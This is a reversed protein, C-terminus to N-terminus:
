NINIRQGKSHSSFEPAYMSQITTIGNSFQGAMVVRLDYEFIYFGKSLHDFFFNTTADKTSEYYGLGDQWKYQSLVNIPELGSARMDKMHIFEMVRDAQIEIRVTVLDGVSLIQSDTLAILEKGRDSNTKKFLTKKLKLPTTSPTIKDLDEFYQWYLAGWAGTNGTASISIDSMRPRIETGNWSTKFYGTGAEIQAEQAKSPIVKLNGLNVDAMDTISVWDSGQLLLAYVAETTAKTSKWQNLQKNKLLWHKLNDITEKDNEIESFVEILLAQTEIPAQYWYWSPQNSKWYMGLEESQISNEKLSKLIQSSITKNHSRFQFLAIMGKGFLNFESWYTASQNIYFEIAKQTTNNIPIDPYFSRMYLYHLEFYQIHKQALYTEYNKLGKRAKIKKAKELVSKYTDVLEADLFQVAKTIMSETSPDFTSVGLKKLHGFGSTIHQTVLVNSRNSGKFWTFAGSHLQMNKLKTMTNHQENKMRNLDFLLGIRKKQETESQADRLWPTEQIILSKLDQNKDLNSLVADTSKWANFVEQIRPNSNAIHSALMNAYYRAFTQESCEYPYEMLYPLAQIAYWAPNSTVELTLKHNKLTTSSNNKLKNISFTKTSNSRVWMPVTETVLMRNTLVPLVHQEGDSFDGAKAVIKYQLADITDPITLQWSVNTNGNMDVTFSQSRNESPDFLNVNKGTIVDTITLQAIGQVKKDTLNSIKNSLTIKDGHRLFRPLNPVVMLKKQTVVDLTKTASHLTKTHALLQLKWKTLAEPATFNFTVSGTKDTTLHPYFFATEQFNKRIQINNLSLKTQENDSKDLAVKDLAMSDNAEISTEELESENEPTTMNKTMIGPTKGRIAYVIQPHNAFYFGFWNLQNYMQPQYPIAYATNLNQVYLQTIGFSEHANPSSRVYYRAKQVPSFRWAHPKFQDLSADYMSALLEAVVKDKRDGKITFSWTQDEGPQLRDRFTKTQIELDTKPYPVNVLVKGSDFANYNVLHYAVAFGGLDNETVPITITKSNKSLHIYHSQIIQHQKEIYVMVTINKSNSSVTIIAKEGVSYIDKDTKVQLLQNDAPVKENSSIVSFFHIDTVKQSFKDQSELEAVYHGTTWHKIKNLSIEKEKETNFAEYFVMIGKQWNIFHDENAYADHPFKEKFEKESISQYDPASWPRKRLPFEPAILKYIKIKGKAPVFEGNLNQTKIKITQNKKSANLEKDMEITGLLSHYGVKVTTTASRTEGNIDTVDAAIIYTFVPLNKRDVSEDAFAKFNIIFNGNEDTISDGHVIEQPESSFYPRYWYWWNPYQVQRYVRYVVKANTINAGSFATAFGNVLISDNIKYSETIPKFDTEFKPRKYEEVSVSLSRRHGNIQVEITHHGTLGSNPTTFEGSFSGFANTKLIINKILQGNADKFIVSVDANHLVTSTTKFTEMAIGKFYLTQGPRYISRDTFLFTQTYVKSPTKTSSYRRSLYFKGFTAKDNNYSVHAKVGSYNESNLNLTVEGNKDTKFTKDIKPNRHRTPTNTLRIKAQSVPKGTHRNVVQYVQKSDNDRDILALNTVQIATTGFPTNELLKEGSLAVLLYRGQALKPIIVETTHQQYDNENKLSVHWSRVKTLKNIFKIKEKEGYTQKLKEAQSESISFMLFSLSDLNKYTVLARSYNQIPIYEETSIQLSKSLIQHKLLACKKAGASEPFKQLISECITLAEKNKFRPTEHITHQYSNAQQRYISAVEYAYLGSVEHNKYQTQSTKLTTLYLAEKSNFTAHQKIFELREIDIIALAEINNKQQHFAILDQYLKIANLQLSLTDKTRISLTAFSEANSLLKPNEIKFQYAPKTINTENTKYFALSNHALFDYLTPRYLNSNEATQLIANFTDINVEQLKLKNQLSARYNHHIETFLTTLDWTRFDSKDTKQATVTRNYFRWRNQNFYQWYLNALISQLVNKTPFESNAIHKKFENIILLQANEELLLSFKSKYFLAKIRQPANDDLHAERYIDEVVKLASKPRKQSELKEVEEWLNSYTKQATSTISFLFLMLLLPTLKKM